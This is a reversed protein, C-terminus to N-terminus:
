GKVQARRHRRAAARAHAGHQARVRNVEATARATLKPLVANAQAQTIAGAAVGKALATRKEAVLAAVLGAVSKGDSAEAIQALTKGALLQARLQAANVGLYSAAPVLVRGRGHGAAHVVTPGGIRDVEDTVISPLAAADAALKEKDAAELAAILGAESRGATADAVQALSKGSRLESRLQTSSVGLYDAATALAGRRHHRASPKAAMVVAATVGAIVAVVALGVLLKKRLVRNMM